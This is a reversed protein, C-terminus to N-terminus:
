IPSDVLMITANIVNTRQSNARNENPYTVTLSAEIVVFSLYLSDVSNAAYISINTPLKAILNGYQFAETCIISMDHLIETMNVWPPPCGYCSETLPEDTWKNVKECVSVSSLTSSLYLLCPLLLLTM